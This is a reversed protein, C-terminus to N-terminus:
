TPTRIRSITKNQGWILHEQNNTVGMYHITSGYTPHVHAEIDPNFYVRFQLAKNYLSVFSFSGRNISVGMNAVLWLVLPSLVWIGPVQWFVM